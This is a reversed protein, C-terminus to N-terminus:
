VRELIVKVRDDKKFHKSVEKPLYILKNKFGDRYTLAGERIHVIFEM